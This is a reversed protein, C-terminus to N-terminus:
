KSKILTSLDAKRLIELKKLKDELIEIQREYRSEEIERVGKKSPLNVLVTIMFFMLLLILLWGFPVIDATIEMLKRIEGKGYILLLYILLFIFSGNFAVRFIIRLSKKKEFLIREKILGALENEADEYQVVLPQRIYSVREEAWKNIDEIIEESLLSKLTQMIALTHENGYELDLALKRRSYARVVNADWPIPSLYKSVELFNNFTEVFDPLLKNLLVWTRMYTLDDRMLGKLREIGAASLPDYEAVIIVEDSIERGMVVQAYLDMGAQADLFIYDYSGRLQSLFYKFYSKLDNISLNECMKFDYTAPLFDIGSKLAFIDAKCNKGVCDFVGFSVRGETHVDDSYRKVEKLYMLTMGQTAADVDVILVKKNLVSLFSALSATIVTKGTGGKASAM